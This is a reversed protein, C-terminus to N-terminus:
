FDGTKVFILGDSSNPVSPQIHSEQLFKQSKCIQLFLRFQTSQGKLQEISQNIQCNESYLATAAIYM